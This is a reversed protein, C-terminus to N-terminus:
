PKIERCPVSPEFGGGELSSDAFWRNRLGVSAIAPPPPLAFREAGELAAVLGASGPTNVPTGIFGTHITTRLTQFRRSRTDSRAGTYSPIRGSKVSPSASESHRRGPM